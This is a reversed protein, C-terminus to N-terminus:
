ALSQSLPFVELATGGFIRARDSEGHSALEEQVLRLANTYGERISVPSYDSGWMMHAPGFSQFALELLPPIPREFPFPLTPPIIRRAFEGLGPVKVYLNPFRALAYFAQRAAPDPPQDRDYAGSGLHEIAIKLRPVSAVLEAFAESVFDAHAGWCSVGLNLREAARWIALPDEGPSRASAALRVGSAGAAALRELTPVADPTGVEVFVVNSFRGPYRRVCEFQYSNDPQVNDQVLVAHAVAHRDMQFLLAEVPEFWNLCAHTHSDVIIV